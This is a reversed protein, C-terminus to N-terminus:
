FFYNPSKKANFLSSVFICLYKASHEMLVICVILFHSMKLLYIFIYIFLYIFLLYIFQSTFTYFIFFYRFSYM